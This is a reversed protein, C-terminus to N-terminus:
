EVGWFVRVSSRLKCNHAGYDEIHNVGERVVIYEMRLTGVALMFVELRIM